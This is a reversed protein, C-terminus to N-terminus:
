INRGHKKNLNRPIWGFCRVALFYLWRKFFPCGSEKMVELFVVDCWFRKVKTKYLYDHIIAARLTNLAFPDFGFLWLFKPISAGDTIFGAPVIYKFGYYDCKVRDLTKIKFKPLALAKIKHHKTILM